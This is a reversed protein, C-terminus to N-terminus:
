LKVKEIIKLCQIRSIIDARSQIRCKKRSVSIAVNDLIRKQFINGAWQGRYDFIEVDAIGDQWIDTKEETLWQRKKRRSMLLHLYSIINCELM